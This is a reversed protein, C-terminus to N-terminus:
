RLADAGPSELPLILVPLTSSGLVEQVVKARGGLSVQSWSLAVLDVKMEDSVEIVRAAVPGPRLEVSVAHPLHSKAFERGLLDMDERPHDLMRPLTIETFVHLVILEVESGFLTSLGESAARSSAETGELPVLLRRLRRPSLAEPPVVTVPKDASEIVQMATSGLPRRGGATGRAGVVGAVVEPSGIAELLAKGAPGDLRRLRVGAKRALFEPTVAPGDVVHVAEVDMGAQEGIRLATELVPRAAATTDLAAIITRM